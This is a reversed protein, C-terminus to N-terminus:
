HSINILKWSMLKDMLYFIQDVTKILFNTTKDAQIILRNVWGSESGFQFIHLATFLNLVMCRGMSQLSLNM